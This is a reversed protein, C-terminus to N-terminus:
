ADGSATSTPPPSQKAQPSHDHSPASEALSGEQQSDCEDGLLTLLARVLDIQTVGQDHAAKGLKEWTKADVRRPRKDRKTLPERKRFGAQDLLDIVTHLYNTVALDLTESFRIDELDKESLPSQPPMGHPTAGQNSGNRLDKHSIRKDRLAKALKAKDVISKNVDIRPVNTAM